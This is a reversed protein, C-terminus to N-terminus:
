LKAEESSLLSAPIEVELGSLLLQAYTKGQRDVVLSSLGGGGLSHTLVFNFAHPGPLEFRTVSGKCLHKMYDAVVEETISRKIYPLYKPDRAIIGINCVDGKDGSRGYAVNILRTKVLPTSMNDASPIVPVPTPKSYTANSDWSGWAVSKLRGGRGVIYSTTIQSKPILLPFHVLNPIPKPRGSGGGTIGPAMCTASPITELAVLGLAKPDDHHATLRLIVERTHSTVSHPGYLSEAGIPEINVNRFDPFGLQQYMGRVRQLIAQGVAEAKKKADIGGILLEGTIKWGDLFIGSCKLHPTPQLGKAGRVLVRNSGVQSLTVQRMDLIVDPLLYLSPDLIEYLIQESVTAPTVIGGTKEPKTVVFSGNQDFEVIPYGMNSYGGYPSQAALFWDTFNGGTAHCGCEIVHGALSASALLDYYGATKGEEWGYEYILPAVVLASDVVRGTVIIQAGEKLAEVIARSGLYANLSLIPENEDPLRDADKTHDVSSITSFPHVDKFSALTRDERDGLVDDGVVAAVSVGKINFKELLAEIAEKCGIPDLGGANTIVKTGNKILDPLIKSLVLTLFESIYDAGKDTKGSMIRRQRRAALIGMTIEALYDAVLYDLNKGEHKVLQAAAAVSDGWFASYCGIRIPRNRQQSM